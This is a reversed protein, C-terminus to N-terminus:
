SVWIFKYILREPNNPASINKPLNSADLHARFLFFISHVKQTKTFLLVFFFANKCSIELVCHNGHLDIHIQIHTHTNTHSGNENLSICLGECCLWGSMWDTCNLPILDGKINNVSWKRGRSCRCRHVLSTTEKEKLSQAQALIITQLLQLPLFFLQM